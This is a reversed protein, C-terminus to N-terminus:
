TGWGVPPDGWKSITIVGFGGRNPNSDPELRFGHKEATFPIWDAGNWYALVLPKGEREAAVRDARTYRIRVEIEQDLEDPYEGPQDEFEMGLNIVARIPKFKGPRPRMDPDGLPLEVARLRRRAQEPVSVEVDDKLFRFARRNAVDDEM